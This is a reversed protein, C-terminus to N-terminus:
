HSEETDFIDRYLVLWGEIDLECYEGGPLVGDGGCECDEDCYWAVYPTAYEGPVRAIDEALTYGISESDHMANPAGHQGTYYRSLNDWDQFNCAAMDIDEGPTCYVGDTMQSIFGYVQNGNGLDHCDYSVGMDSDIPEITFEDWGYNRILAELTQGPTNDIM